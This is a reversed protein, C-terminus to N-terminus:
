LNIVLVTGLVDTYLIFVGFNIFRMFIVDKNYSTISKQNFIFIFVFTDQIKYSVPIFYTDHYLSVLYLQIMSVYRQYQGVRGVMCLIHYNSCSTM